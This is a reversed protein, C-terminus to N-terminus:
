RRRGGRWSSSATASARSTPTTPRAPSPASTTARWSCSRSGCRSRRYWRIDTMSRGPGSRTAPSSTTAAPFGASAPSTRWSSCGAAAPRRRDIWMACSTASTPSRTASRRWRGTSSRSWGPRRRAARVDHQRPPLRRARDDGPPVRAHQERSGTASRSSRRSRAPRTTSGCGSSAGCSASSTARRSASARSGPRRGTSPTSRSWRTSSSARRDARPGRRTDLAAPVEGTISTGTARAGDRLVARRHGGRRRVGRAGAARAGPGGARAAGAGRAARRPRQAAAPRAASPAPRVRDGLAFTVNSHGDGVPEVADRRGSATPTSSRPSRISCSCRSASTRRARRAPASSM